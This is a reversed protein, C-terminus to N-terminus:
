VQAEAAGEPAPLSRGVGAVRGVISVLDSWVEAFLTRLVAAYLVLGAVFCVALIVASPLGHGDLAARLATLAGVTCAGVVFGPLVESAFQRITVGVLPRMLLLQNLVVAAVAFGAVGISVATLGHSALLFIIAAYVVLECLNWALLLKPRGIAVLVPGTGTTLADGMGAIAIIQAPVVAPQWASGYVWPVAVPALAVFAALLPIIVTAHTRVIRMRLRRLDDVSESRSYVPFSVRLMIQSIKGQYDAGLQYARWYYGVDAASMRAGLIAYDVSRFMSYVLSSLAVPAAFGGVERVGDRTPRPRAPPSSVVALATGIAATALAGSVLAAGDVGAVALSVATAAGALVSASDVVAIRRFRLERQLMSQSVAGLAVILWAPSALALLRATESGFLPEGAVPALGLTLLTLSVGAVVSLFAAGELHLRELTRRQVLPATIGAPGIVVALAVVVMAVAARGFEAPPILRALV